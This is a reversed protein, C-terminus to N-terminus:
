SPNLENPKVYILVDIPFDNMTDGADMVVCLKVGLLHGLHWDAIKVGENHQSAQKIVTTLDM